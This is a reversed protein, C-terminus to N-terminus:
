AGATTAVMAAVAELAVPAEVAVLAALLPAERSPGGPKGGSAAAISM